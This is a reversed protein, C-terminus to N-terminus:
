PTDPGFLRDAAHERWDTLEDPFLRDQEASILAAQWIARDWAAKSLWASLSMKDADAAARAAALTAKDVTLGVHETPVPKTRARSNYMLGWVDPQNM